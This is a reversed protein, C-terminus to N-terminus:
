SLVEKARKRIIELDNRPIKRSKKELHHLLWIVGRTVCVYIRYQTGEIKRRLEWVSGPIGVVRKLDVKRSALGEIQLLHLDLGLQTAVEKRYPDQKLGRLYERVPGDDGAPYFEVRLLEPEKKNYCM